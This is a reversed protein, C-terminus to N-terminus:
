VAALRQSTEDNVSIGSQSEMGNLLNILWNSPNELSSTPGSRLEAFVDPRDLGTDGIHQRILQYKDNITIRGQM